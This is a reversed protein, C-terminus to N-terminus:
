TPVGKQSQKAPLFAAVAGAIATVALADHPALGAVCNQNQLVFGAVSGFTAALGAYNVALHVHPLAFKM